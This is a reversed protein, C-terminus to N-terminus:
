VGTERTPLPLAIHSKTQLCLRNLDNLFAERDSSVSLMSTSAPDQLHTMLRQSVYDCGELLLGITMAKAAAYQKEDDELIRQAIDQDTNYASIMATLRRIRDAKERIMKEERQKKILLPDYCENSIYFSGVSTVIPVVMGTIAIMWAIPNQSDKTDEGPDESALDFYSQSTQSLNPSAIDVTVARLGINAACILGCVALALRLTFKDKALGQQIKKYHMGIFIPICDFGFIFGAIQVWLLAPRDYSIVSFLSYFFCGDIFGCLAMIIYPVIGRLFPSDPKYKERIDDLLAPNILEGQANIELLHNNM